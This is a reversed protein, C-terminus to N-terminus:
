PYKFLKEAWEGDHKFLKEDFPGWTKNKMALMFLDKLKYKILKKKSVKLNEYYDNRKFPDKEIVYDYVQENVECWAHAFWYGRDDGWIWAHVIVPYDDRHDCAADYAAKFCLKDYNKQM